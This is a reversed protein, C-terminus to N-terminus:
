YETDIKVIDEIPVARGNTFVVTHSYGDIKKIVGALQVYEGGEKKGDALFYTITAAPQERLNKEIHLLKANLEAKEDEDLERRRDTLRGTETIAAGFGSLAAFPAFQIARDGLPMQPHKASVHHPLDIIDGYGSHGEENATMQKEERDKVHKM